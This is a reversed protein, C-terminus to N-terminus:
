SKFWLTPERQCTAGMRFSDLLLEGDSMESVGLFVAESIELATYWFVTDFVLCVNIIKCAM